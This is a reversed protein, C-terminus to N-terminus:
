DQSQDKELPVRKGLKYVQRVLNIGFYYPIFREDPCNWIVFDAQYGLSLSGIRDELCLARTGGRTSAWLAERPSLKCFSGALTMMLPLNQTPSSGPNFDTALALSGGKELIRRAPPYRNLGLFLVSGPLLTFVVGAEVMEPTIEIEETEERRGTTAM